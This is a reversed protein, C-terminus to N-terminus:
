NLKNQELTIHFTNFLWACLSEKEEKSLSTLAIKIERKFREPNNIAKEIKEKTYFYLMRSM